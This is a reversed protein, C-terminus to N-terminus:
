CLSSGSFLMESRVIGSKSRHAGKKIGATQRDNANLKVNEQFCLAAANIIAKIPRYM